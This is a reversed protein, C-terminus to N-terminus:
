EEGGGSTDASSSPEAAESGASDQPAGEPLGGGLAAPDLNGIPTEPMVMMGKRDLHIGSEGSQDQGPNPDPQPSPEDADTEAM